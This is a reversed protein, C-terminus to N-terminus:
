SVDPIGRAPKAAPFWESDDALTGLADTTARFSTPDALIGRQAVRATLADEVAFEPMFEALRARLYDSM